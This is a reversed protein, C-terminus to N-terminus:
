HIKVTAMVSRTRRGKGGTRRPPVRWFHKKKVLHPYLTDRQDKVTKWDYQSQADMLVTARKDSTMEAAQFFQRIKIPDPIELKCDSCKQAAQDIRVALDGYTENEKAADCSFFWDM